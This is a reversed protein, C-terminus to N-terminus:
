RSSHGRLRAFLWLTLMVLGHCGNGEVFLVRALGKHLLEHLVEALKLKNRSLIYSLIYLIKVPLICMDTIVFLIVFRLLLPLVFLLLFM